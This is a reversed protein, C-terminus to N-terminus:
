FDTSQSVKPSTFRNLPTLLLLLFSSTLLLVLSCRAVGICTQVGGWCVLAEVNEPNEGGGIGEGAAGGAGDGVEARLVDAARALRDTCRSVFLARERAVADAPLEDSVEM